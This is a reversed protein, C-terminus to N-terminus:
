AAGIDTYGLPTADYLDFYVQIDDIVVIWAPTLEAKQLADGEAATRVYGTQVLDIRDSVEDFLADKDKQKFTYGEKLLLSYLYEYNQALMNVPSFTEKENGTNEVTDGPRIRVLDRKYYTVQGNLIDVTLIDGNEYFLDQGGTKVEFVFRYGSLKDEKIQVSYRLRSSLGEEEFPNWGGHAGVFQLVNELAEFYNQESGTTPPDEKYEASGDAFITLVKQGYGYMYIRSGKSEEIRRVFDFSEGFFQQAFERMAMEETRDLEPICDVTDEASTFALPMLTQSTTGLFTGIPYYTVYENEEVAKILPELSDKNEPSILRYYEGSIEDALFLSEPSGGSYGISSFSKVGTLLQQEAVSYEDCFSDFPISYLFIVRVSRFAMIQEYQEKTIQELMLDQANRFRRLVLLTQNWSDQELYSVVTSAGTGFNIAIQEPQIIQAVSPVEAETEESMINSLDFTSLVPSEWFFYLLLMASIFLAVILINKLREIYKRPRDM